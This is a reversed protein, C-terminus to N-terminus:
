EPGTAAESDRVRMKHAPINCDVWGGLPIIRLAGNPLISQVMFAVEDSHADLQVMPRSGTNGTRAIYLNRLSDQEPNGFGSGHRRLERVVDDEFGPAGNANSLDRIIDIAKEKTYSM